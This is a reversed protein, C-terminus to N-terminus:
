FPCLNALTYFRVIDDFHCPGAFPDTRNGSCSPGPAVSQYPQRHVANRWEAGAGGTSNGSGDPLSLQTGNPLCGGVGTRGHSILVVIVKNDDYDPKGDGTKDIPINSEDIPINSESWYSILRGWGDIVADFPLGLDALSGIYKGTSDEKYALVKCTTSPPTVPGPLKNNLKYYACLAVRIREMNALTTAERALSDKSQSVMQMALAVAAATVLAVMLGVVLIGRQDRDFSRVRKNM